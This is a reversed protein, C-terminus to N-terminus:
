NFKERQIDDRKAERFLFFFNTSIVLTNTYTRRRYALNEMRLCFRKAHVNYTIKASGCEIKIAIQHKSNSIYFFISINCSKKSTFTETHPENTATYLTITARKIKKKKKKKIETRNDRPNKKSDKKKGTLRLTRALIYTNM